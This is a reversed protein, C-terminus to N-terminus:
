SGAPPGRNAVSQLLRQTFAFQLDEESRSTVIFEPFATRLWARQMDSTRDDQLVCHASVWADSVDDVIDGQPSLSVRTLGGGTCIIVSSYGNGVTAAVALSIKPALLAGILLLYAAARAAAFCRQHNPASMRM